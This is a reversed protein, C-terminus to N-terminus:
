FHYNFAVRATDTTLKMTHTFTNAPFSQSPTNATLTGGPVTLTGFEAHLYEPNLSWGRGMRISAGAGAVWGSRFKNSSASENANGLTDTFLGDYRVKEGAWGGTAYVASGGGFGLGLKLRATTMWKPDVSQSITYTSASSPYAATVTSTRGHGLSSIDAVVGLLLNGSHHDYGIQAGGSFGRPKVQQVGAGNVAAGNATSFYGAPDVTTSTTTDAKTWNYGASVGVYPGSLEDDDQARAATAALAMAAMSAAALARIPLNQM